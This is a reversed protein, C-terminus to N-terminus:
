GNAGPISQYNVEKVLTTHLQVAANVVKPLEMVAIFIEALQGAMPNPAVTASGPLRSVGTEKVPCALLATKRSGPQVVPIVFRFQMATQANCQIQLVFQLKCLRLAAAPLLDLILLVTLVVRQALGTVPVRTQAATIVPLAQNHRKRHCTVSGATQLIQVAVPQVNLPIAIIGARLTLTATMVANQRVARPLLVNVM